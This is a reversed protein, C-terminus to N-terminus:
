LQMAVVLVMLSALSAVAVVSSRLKAGSFAFGALWLSGIFCLLGVFLVLGSRLHNSDMVQQPTSPSYDGLQSVFGYYILPWSLMVLGIAWNSATAQKMRDLPQHSRRDLSPSTPEQTAM